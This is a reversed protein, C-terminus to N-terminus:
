PGTGTATKGAPISEALAQGLPYAFVTMCDISRFSDLAWEEPEVQVGLQSYWNQYLREPDTRNRWLDLKFLGSVCARTYDTHLVALGRSRLGDDCLLQLATHAFLVAIVEDVLPSLWPLDNQPLSAYVCAHGFEHYLTCWSYMSDIPSIALHIRRSDTQSAFCFHDTMAISLRPLVPELGMRCAFTELLPMPASPEMLMAMRHLRSFWDVMAINEEHAWKATAPLHIKLYDTLKGILWDGQLGDAALIGDAYGVYGLSVAAADRREMLALVDPRMKRARGARTEGPYNAWNDLRNRLPYVEPQCEMALCVLGRKRKAGDLATRICERAPQLNHAAGANNESQLRNFDVVAQYLTRKDM